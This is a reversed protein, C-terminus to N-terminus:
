EGGHRPQLKSRSAVGKGVRKKAKSTKVSSKKGIHAGNSISFVSSTNSPAISERRSMNTHTTSIAPSDQFQPHSGQFEDSDQSSCAHTVQDLDLDPKM